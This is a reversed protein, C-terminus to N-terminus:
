LNRGDGSVRIHIVIYQMMEEEIKQDNIDLTQDVIETVAEIHKNKEDRNENHYNVVYNKDQVSFRLEQLIPQDMPNYFKPIQKKFAIGVQKSFTRSHKEKMSKSLTNFPKFSHTRKKERMRARCRGCKAWIYRIHVGSLKAQTDPNR